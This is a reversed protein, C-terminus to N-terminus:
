SLADRTNPSLYLLSEHFTLCVQDMKDRTISFPALAAATADAKMNRRMAVIWNRLRTNLRHQKQEKPVHEKTVRQDTAGTWTKENYNDWRYWEGKWQYYEENHEFAQKNDHKLSFKKDNSESRQYYEENHELAQKNDDKLSVNKDNSASRHKKGQSPLKEVEKGTATQRTATKKKDATGSTHKNTRAKLIADVQKALRL